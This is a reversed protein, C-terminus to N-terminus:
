IKVHGEYEEFMLFISKLCRYSINYAFWNWDFSLFFVVFFCLFYQIDIIFRKRTELCNIQKEIFEFIWVNLLFLINLKYFFFLLSLDLDHMQKGLTVWFFQLLRLLGLLGHIIYLYTIFKCLIWIICMNEFIDFMTKSILSQINWFHISIIKFKDFTCGQTIKYIKTINEMMEICLSNYNNPQYHKIRLVLFYINVFYFCTM